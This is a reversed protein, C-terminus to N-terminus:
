KGVRLAVLILSPSFVRYDLGENWAAAPFCASTKESVLSCRSDLPLPRIRAGRLLVVAAAVAVATALPRSFERARKPPPHLTSPPPHAHVASLPRRRRRSLSPLPSASLPYSPIRSKRLPTKTYTDALPHIM